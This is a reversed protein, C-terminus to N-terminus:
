NDHLVVVDSFIGRQIAYNGIFVNYNAISFREASATRQRVKDLLTRSELFENSTLGINRMPRVDSMVFVM